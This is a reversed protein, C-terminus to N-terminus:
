HSLTAALVLILAVTLAFAAGAAAAVAAVIPGIPAVARKICRLAVLLCLGAVMLYLGDHSGTTLPLEPLQTSHM